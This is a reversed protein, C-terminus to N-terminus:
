EINKIIEDQLEERYKKPTVLTMKKFLRTFYSASEFNLEYAIEAINKSFNQLLIKSQEICYEDIWQKPSKGTNKKVCKHLYSQSIALANAYFVVSKQELFHEELLSKFKSTITCDKINVIGFTQYDVLRSLVSNFLNFTVAFRGKKEDLEKKLLYLTTDISQADVEDLAHYLHKGGSFQFSCTFSEIEYNVIYGEVDDSVDITRTFDGKKVNICQFKEVKFTNKEIQQTVFGRTVFIFLGFNTKYPENVPLIGKLYDQIHYVQIKDKSFIINNPLFSLFRKKYEACSLYGDRNKM